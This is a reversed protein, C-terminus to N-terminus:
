KELFADAPVVFIATCGHKSTLEDHDSGGEAHHFDGQGLEHGEVCLDGTLVYCEEGASHHHQPYRVGAELEAYIMAYNRAVDLSLLKARVGPILPPLWEGEGHRVFRFISPKAAHPETEHGAPKKAAAAHIKEMLKTKVAPAPRCPSQRAAAILAAVNNFSALEAKSAHDAKALFQNFESLDTGDLTGIANLAALEQLREANM